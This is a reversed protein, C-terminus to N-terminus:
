REKEGQQGVATDADDMTTGHHGTPQHSTLSSTMAIASSV